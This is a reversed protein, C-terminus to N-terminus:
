IGGTRGFGFKKAMWEPNKDIAESIKKAGAPSFSKPTPFSKAIAHKKQEANPDAVPPPPTFSPPQIEPTIDPTVKANPNPNGKFGAGYADYNNQEQRNGVWSPSAGPTNWPNMPATTSIPQGGGELQAYRKGLPGSTGYDEQKNALVQGYQNPDFANVAGQWDERLGESAWGGGPDITMQNNTMWQGMNGPLKEIALGKANDLWSDFAESAIPWKDKFNEGSGFQGAWEMLKKKVPGEWNGGGGFPLNNKIIGVAVAGVIGVTALLKRKQEPSLNQWIQAVPNDSGFQNKDGDDGGGGPVYIYTNGDDGYAM